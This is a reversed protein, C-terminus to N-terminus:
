TLPTPALTPHYHCGEAEPARAFVGLLPEPPTRCAAGGPCALAGPGVLVKGHPTRTVYTGGHGPFFQLRLLPQPHVGSTLAGKSQLGWPSQGGGWRAM